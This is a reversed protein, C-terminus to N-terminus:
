LAQLPTSLKVGRGINSRRFLGYTTYEGSIQWGNYLWVSSGRSANIEALYLHQKVVSKSVYNAIYRGHSVLSHILSHMFSHRANICHYHRFFGLVRFRVQGFSVPGGLYRMFNSSNLGIKRPSLFNTLNQAENDTSEFPRRDEFHFLSLVLLSWELRRYSIVLRYPMRTCRLLSFDEDTGRHSGLVEYTWQRNRKCFKIPAIESELNILNRLGCCVRLM